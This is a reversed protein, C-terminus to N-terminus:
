GEGRAAKRLEELVAHERWPWGLQTKPMFVVTDGFETTRRLRITVPRINIWPNETVDLIEGAPIRIEKRYNSVVIVGDGLSVKKLTGCLRLIVTSGILWVALFVWKMEPPPLQGGKGHLGGFWLLATGMGFISIWITPFIVKMLFTKSSSIVKPEM